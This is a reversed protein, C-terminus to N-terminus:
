QQIGRIRRVTVEALRRFGVTDPVIDVAVGHKDVAHETPPGIAGVITEELGRQLATVADRETAIQVFYEVTKPSTFLIGNLEGNIALSVSKGATEPRELRYLHTERVVAGAAELGEVLVDSGHVSRALEVTQGEVEAALEDVLGTSTFTPPVVDVSYGRNRLATETQDGVACVTTERQKWGATAVLNVGTESTFVCYDAHQPVQGTPEITLMPDPIPSVDLSQLYEVAEVIRDDDPRLVAVTPQSM